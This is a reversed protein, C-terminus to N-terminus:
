LNMFDLINQAVQYHGLQRNQQRHGGDKSALKEMELIDEKSESRCHCSHKSHCLVVVKKTFLKFSKRDEM